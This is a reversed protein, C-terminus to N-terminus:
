MGDAAAIVEKKIMDRINNLSSDHIKEWLSIKEDLYAEIDSDRAIIEQVLSGNFRVEVEQHRSTAFINLSTKAQLTLIESLLVDRCADYNQCEDLADIGIFTRSNSSIVSQLVLLIETLHPESRTEKYRDYLDKVEKPLPSRNWVLQKLLSRIMSEPTQQDQQGINCYLYAVSSSTYNNRLYEIVIATCYTKGAGPIGPCFLTQNDAKLWDQFPESDLLWQGTGVQRKSIYSEQPDYDTKVLWSLIESDEKKDWRFNINDVKIETM